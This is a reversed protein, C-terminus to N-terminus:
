DILYNLHNSLAKIKEIDGVLAEIVAIKAKYEVKPLMCGQQCSTVPQLLKELLKCAEDVIHNTVDKENEFLSGDNTKYYEVKEFM